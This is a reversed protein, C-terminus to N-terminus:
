LEDFDGRDRSNIIAYFVWGVCWLMLGLFGFWIASYMPVFGFGETLYLVLSLGMFDSALAILWFALRKLKMEDLHRSKRSLNQLWSFLKPSM